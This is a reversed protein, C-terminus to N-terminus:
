FVCYFSETTALCCEEPRVWLKPVYSAPHGPLDTKESFLTFVAVSREMSRNESIAENLRISFRPRHKDLRTEKRRM